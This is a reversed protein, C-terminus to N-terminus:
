PQAKSIPSQWKRLNVLCLVVKRSHKEGFDLIISKLYTRLSGGNLPRRGKEHLCDGSRLLFLCDLILERSDRKQSRDPENSALRGRGEM